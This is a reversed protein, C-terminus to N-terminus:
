RDPFLAKALAALERLERGAGGGTLGREEVGPAAAARTEVAARLARGNARQEAARVTAEETRAAAQEARAEASQVAQRNVERGFLWGIATFVLAEMAGFLYVYRSWAGDAATGAKGVLFILLVAFGLLLAVAVVVAAFGRWRDAGGDASADDGTTQPM